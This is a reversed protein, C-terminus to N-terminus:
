ENSEVIELPENEDVIGVYRAIENLEDDQAKQYYEYQHDWYFRELDQTSMAELFKHAIEDALEDRSIKM